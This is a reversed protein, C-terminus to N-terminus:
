QRKDIRLERPAQRGATYRIQGYLDGSAGLPSGSVSVRAVVTVQQGPQVAHGAIMANAASLEVDQPLQAQLRRVALPAGGQPAQVFVFLSAGAPVQGALAPALTVHLRIATRADVVPHLQADITTIQKRLLTQINAPPQGDLMRAFRTRALQLNGSQMAAVATYFLAKPSDPDLKLVREFLQAARERQSEDGGLVIAQAIGAMASADNGGGLANAREYSRIAFHFQGIQTYQQGLSLWGARDDPEAQLHRVLQSIDPTGAAHDAARRWQLNGLWGYLVAALVLVALVSAGAPLWAYATGAGRRLLPLAVFAAAVLALLVAVAVFVAM